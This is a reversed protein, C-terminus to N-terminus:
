QMCNTGESHKRATDESDGSVSVLLILYGLRNQVRWGM